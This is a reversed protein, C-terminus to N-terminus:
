KCLLINIFHTHCVDSEGISHIVDKVLYTFSEDEDKFNNLDGVIREIEKVLKGHYSFSGIYSLHFTEGIRPITSIIDSVDLIGCVFDDLQDIENEKIFKGLKTKETFDLYIKTKM